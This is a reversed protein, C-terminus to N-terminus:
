SNMGDAADYLIIEPNSLLELVGSRKNANMTHWIKVGRDAKTLRNATKWLLKHWRQIRHGSTLSCVSTM